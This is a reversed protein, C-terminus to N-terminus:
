MFMFVSAAKKKPPFIHAFYIIFPKLSENSSKSIKGDLTVKENYISINKKKTFSIHISMINYDAIFNWDKGDKAEREISQVAM